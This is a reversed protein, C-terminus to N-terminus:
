WTSDLRTSHFRAGCQSLEPKQLLSSILIEFQCVDLDIALHNIFLRREMGNRETEKGLSLLFLSYHADSELYKLVSIISFFFPIFSVLIEFASRLGVWSLKAGSRETRSWDQASDGLVHSAALRAFLISLFYLAWCKWCLRFVWKLLPVLSCALSSGLLDIFITQCTRAIMIIQWCVCLCLSLSFSLSTTRSISNWMFGSVSKTLLWFFSLQFSKWFTTPRPLRTMTMLSISQFSQSSIEGGWKLHPSSICIQM